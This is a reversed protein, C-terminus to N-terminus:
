ACPAHMGTWVAIRCHLHCRGEAMYSSASECASVVNWARSGGVTSKAATDRELVVEVAGGMVGEEGEMSRESRGPSRCRGKSPDEGRM